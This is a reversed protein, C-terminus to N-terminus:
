KILNAQKLTPLCYNQPSLREDLKMSPSSVDLHHNLGCLCSTLLLLAHQKDVVSYSKSSYSAAM